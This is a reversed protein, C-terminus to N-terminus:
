PTGYSTLGEYESNGAAKYNSPRSYDTLLALTNPMSIGLRNHYENYAIEFTDQWGYTSAPDITSPCPWGAPTNGDMFSKIYGTNLEIGAVIRTKFDSYNYLDLGQLRATEAVNIMPGFGMSMHAADRCTEGELGSVYSTPNHWYSNMQAATTSTTDYMTDPTSIPLGALAPHSNTDGSMYVISPVQAKWRTIADNFLTQNNEFIGINLTAEDFSMLWNAGGGYWVQDVFPVYASNFMDTLNSVDLSAEGAPPTYTYRILEAAKAFVAGTWSAQLAANNSASDSPGNYVRNRFVAAWGNIINIAQQAYADRNSSSYEYMLAATYAAIADNDEDICLTPENALNGSGCEVNDGPHPVYSLSAYPVGAESGLPPKVTQMQSFFTTWPTAGSAIKDKVFNIQVNGILIGPHVFGSSCTGFQVANGSSASSDSVKAACSTLTGNAADLTATPTAAHSRFVMFGAAVVLIIIVIALRGYGRTLKEWFNRTRM